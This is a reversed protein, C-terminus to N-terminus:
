VEQLPSCGRNPRIDLHQTRRSFHYERKNAFGEGKELLHGMELSRIAKKYVTTLM